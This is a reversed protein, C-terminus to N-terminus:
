SFLDEPNSGQGRSSSGNPHNVHWYEMSLMLNTCQWQTMSFAKAYTKIVVKEGNLRALFINGNDWRSYQIETFHEMILNDPVWNKLPINAVPYSFPDVPDWTPPMSTSQVFVVESSSGSAAVAKPSVRQNEAIRALSGKTLGEYSGASALSLGEVYSSPREVKTVSM